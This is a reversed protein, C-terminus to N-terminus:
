LYWRAKRIAQKEPGSRGAFVEYKLLFPALFCRTVPVSVGAPSLLEM